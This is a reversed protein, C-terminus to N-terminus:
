VSKEAIVYILLNSLSEPDKSSEETIQKIEFDAKTLFDALREKTFFNIFLKENPKLPESVIKDPGGKQVIIGLKGNPKLIRKFEELVDAIKQSQIHIISYAALVAEFTENPFDLQRMDMVTFNGNPVKTKAIRVMEESFDVGEALFGKSLMYDTFNGVGCGVDLIKSGINLSSLFRDIFPLDSTDNFYKESYKEAIKNYTTKVLDEEM